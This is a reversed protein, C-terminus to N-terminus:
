IKMTGSGDIFEQHSQIVEDVHSMVVDNFNFESDKDDARAFKQIFEM